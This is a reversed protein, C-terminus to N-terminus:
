HLGKLIKISELYKSTSSPRESFTGVTQIRSVLSTASEGALEDLNMLFTTASIKDPDIAGADLSSKMLAEITGRTLLVPYYLKSFDTDSKCYNRGSVNTFSYKAKDGNPVWNFGGAAIRSYKRWCSAIRPEGSIITRFIDDEVGADPYMVMLFTRFTRAARDLKEIATHLETGATSSDSLIAAQQSVLIDDLRKEVTESNWSRTEDVESAAETTSQKWKIVPLFDNFSRRLMTELSQAPKHVLECVANFCPSLFLIGVRGDPHRTTSTLIARSVGSNVLYATIVISPAGTVMDVSGVTSFRLIGPVYHYVLKLTGIGLIDAAVADFGSKALASALKDLEEETTLTPFPGNSQLSDFFEPRAGFTAAASANEQSREPNIEGQLPRTRITPFERKWVEIFESRTIWAARAGNQATIRARIGSSAASVARASSVYDEVLSEFLVARRDDDHAIKWVDRELREGVQMLEELAALPKAKFYAPNETALRMYASVAHSWRQPNPHPDGSFAFGAKNLAYGLYWNINSNWDSADRVEPTEGWAGSLAPSRAEAVFQRIAAVCKDYEPEPLDSGNVKKHGLCYKMATAFPNDIIVKLYNQIDDNANNIKTLLQGLTQRSEAVESAIFDSKRALLDIGAILTGQIEMLSTDIRGFRERTENQFEVLQESLAKLQSLIVDDSSPGTDGFTQVLTMGISLWNATLAAASLSEGLRDGKVLDMKQEFARVSARFDLVANSIASFRRADDKNPLASSLLFIGSRLGEDEIKELQLRRSEEAKSKIYQRLSPLDPQAESEQNRTVVKASPGIEKINRDIGDRVKARVESLDEKIQGLENLATKIIEQHSFDPNNNLIAQSSDTTKANIMPGFLADWNKGFDPSNQAADFILDLIREKQYASGDVSYEKRLHEAIRHPDNIIDDFEFELRTAFSSLPFPMTNLLKTVRDVGSYDVGDPSDQRLVKAEKRIQAYYGDFGLQYSLYNPLTEGRAVPEYFTALQDLIKWYKDGGSTDIQYRANAKWVMENTPSLNQGVSHEAWLSVLFFSAFICLKASSM